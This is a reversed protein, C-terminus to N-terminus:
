YYLVYITFIVNNILSNIDNNSFSLELNLFLLELLLSFKNYSLNTENTLLFISSKIVDVSLLSSINNRPKFSKFFVLSSCSM